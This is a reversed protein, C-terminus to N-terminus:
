HGKCADEGKGNPIEENPLTEELAIARRRELEIDVGVLTCPIISLMETAGEVEHYKARVGKSDMMNPIM